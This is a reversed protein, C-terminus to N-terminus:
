FSGGGGGLVSLARWLVIAGILPILVVPLLRLTRQIRLYASRELEHGLELFSNDLRGSTEGAVV